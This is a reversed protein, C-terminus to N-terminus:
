YRLFKFCFLRGTAFCTANTAEIVMKWECPNKLEHFSKSFIFANRICTSSNSSQFIVAHSITVKLKVVSVLIDLLVHAISRLRETIQALGVMSVHIVPM